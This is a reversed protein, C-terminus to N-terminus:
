IQQSTPHAESLLLEGVPASAALAINAMQLPGDRRNNPHIRTDTLVKFLEKLTVQSVEELREFCLFCLGATAPRSASFSIVFSFM